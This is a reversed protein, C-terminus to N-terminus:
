PGLGVGCGAQVPICPPTTGDGLARLGEGVVPAQRDSDTGM